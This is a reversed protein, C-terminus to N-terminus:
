LKLVLRYKRPSKRKPDVKQDIRHRFLRIAIDLDDFVWIRRDLVRGKVGSEKVIKIQEDTQEIWIKYFAQRPSEQAELYAFSVIVTFLNLQEANLRAGNKKIYIQQRM